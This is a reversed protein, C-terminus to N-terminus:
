KWRPNFASYPLSQGLTVFYALDLSLYVLLQAHLNTTGCKNLVNRYLMICQELLHSAKLSDLGVLHSM